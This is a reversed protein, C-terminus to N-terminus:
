TVLLWFHMLSPFGEAIYHFDFLSSIQVIKQFHARTFLFHARTFFAGSFVAPALFVTDKCGRTCIIGIGKQMKM